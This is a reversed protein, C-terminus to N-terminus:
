IRELIGIARRPSTASDAAIIQKMAESSHLKVVAEVKSVDPPRVVKQIGRPRLKGALPLRGGRVQLPAQIRDGEDVGMDMQPIEAMDAVRPQRRREVLAAGVAAGLRDRDIIADDVIQAVGRAPIDTSENVDIRASDGLLREVLGGPELRLRCPMAQGAPDDGENLALVKWSDAELRRQKVLRNAM